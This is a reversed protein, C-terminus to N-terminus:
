IKDLNLQVKLRKHKVITYNQDRCKWNYMNPRDYKERTNISDSRWNILTKLKRPWITSVLFDFTAYSTDLNKIWVRSHTRRIAEIAKDKGLKTIALFEFYYYFNNFLFNPCILQKNIVNSMSDFCYYNVAELGSWLSFETALTLAQGSLHEHGLWLTERLHLSLLNLM